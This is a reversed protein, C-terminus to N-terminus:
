QGNHGNRDTSSRRPTGTFDVTPRTSDDLSSREDRTQSTASRGVLFTPLMYRGMSRLMSRFRGAIVAAPSPAPAPATDARGGHFAEAVDPKGLVICSLIGFVLGLAWAPSWPVMSAIAAAAVLPFGRLRRMLVAGTMMLVSLPVILVAGSTLTPWFWSPVHNTGGMEELAVAVNIVVWSLLAALGTIFLGASPVAVEMRAQERDVAPAAGTVSEVLRRAAPRDERPIYLQVQGQTSGPIGALVSLRKVTVILSRPPRGWGWGYTISAIQHLPIRVEQPRDAGQGQFFDKFKKWLKKNTCEFEVILADDDRNLLGRAAEHDHHPHPMYIQFRVTSWTPTRQPAPRSTGSSPRGQGPADAAAALAAVVEQKFAGADQYREAPDRALARLVVHDVREDVAAKHSPPAFRGLPLEGTLMEYLVVGLSYIDARHDVTHTRKMQEPAMYLLTGMVEHTGTLTLYTPTLGVLRALGFDAIKVRGKRDLLINEPKIDRHVLGEDHAYQLADCLQPIIALAQAAPLAGAQLLDRLNRGDVFEMTFYYLGDVDGFDHVTVIHPHNLRALSRAERTFREAFAPARAVEPPLIKVAVLRDLKTQRAKYVAGMGGQGLLALMELQPFHQALEAPPPPAFAAPPTRGAPPEDTEDRGEIIGQFLCAPCLGQPADAAVEAQCGPCYLAQPM